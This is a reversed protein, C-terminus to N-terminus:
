KPGGRHEPPADPNVTAAPPVHDYLGGGEDWTLIFVSNSWSTSNMLANIVKEAQQAGTQVNNDPHEDLGSDRGADILAVAPLSGNQLDTFYESLPVVHSILGNLQSFFVAYTDPAGTSTTDTYYIKWSIGAKELLNFITTATLQSTPVSVWGQSTAAFNFLHNPESKAMLPSFFRDSIAFQAAMFYYYNLQTQDYYGMARMGTVDLLGANAAFAGAEYAFGNM